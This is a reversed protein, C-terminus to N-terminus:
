PFKEYIEELEHALKSQWQPFGEPSDPYSKNLALLIDNKRKYFLIDRITRLNDGIRTSVFANLLTGIKDAGGFEPTDGTSIDEVDLKSIIHKMGFNIQDNTFSQLVRRLVEYSAMKYGYTDFYEKGYSWLGKESTDEAEVAAAAQKGALISMVLTPGIGGADIARAAWASDGTLMYGNAVLCDAHRRVSVQWVGYANGDTSLRQNKIVPNVRVYDDILSKLDDKRGLVRNQQDLRKKQVGLGINVKSKGKPFVWAYGGPAVVQDLHIICLDPDFFTNDEGGVDFELIYRGTGELDGRNIRREVYCKIPLDNRLPSAIGTADIVVRGRAKFPESGGNGRRAGEVGKVFNDEAIVGSLTVGGVFEVGVGRVDRLQRQPFVRRDLLHGDGDFMVPTLHDPSYAVVGKVSHEVEPPGYQIGLHKAVYSLKNNSVADGCIWGSATKKGVTEEPNRDIVLIRLSQKSYKAAATAALMGAIGGGAVIIDYDPKLAIVDM